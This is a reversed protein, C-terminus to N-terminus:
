SADVVELPAAPTLRERGQPLLLWLREAHGQAGLRRSYRAALAAMRGASRSSRAAANVIERVPTLASEPAAHVMPQLRPGLGKGPRWSRAERWHRAATGVGRARDVWTLDGRLSPGVHFRLLYAALSTDDASDAAGPPVRAGLHGLRMRVAGPVFAEPRDEYLYVNGSSGAEFARLAAEHCLRHDIHEGVGLPVYVQRAGARHRADALAAAATEAWRDDEPLRGEAAESFAAYPAHRASAEPLGLSAETVGLGALPAQRPRPEGFVTLITVRLGSAAEAVLRGPCSLPVDDGHPSVYLSDCADLDPPRTM